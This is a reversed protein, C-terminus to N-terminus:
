VGFAERLQRHIKAMKEYNTMLENYYEEEVDEYLDVLAVYLKYIKLEQALLYLGKIADKAMAYDEDDLFNKLDFFYPDNLYFRVAEEYAKLDPFAASIEEYNLGAKIIKEKM